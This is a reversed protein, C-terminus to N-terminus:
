CPIQISMHRFLSPSFALLCRFLLGVDSTVLSSGCHSVLGDGGPPRANPSPCQFGRASTAASITCGGHRDPVEGLSRGLICFEVGLLIGPM